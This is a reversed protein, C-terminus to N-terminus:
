ERTMDGTPNWRGRASRGLRSAGMTGCGKAVTETKRWGLAEIQGDAVAVAGEALLEAGVVEGLV